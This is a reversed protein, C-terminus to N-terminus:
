NFDLRDFRNKKNIDDKKDDEKRFKLLFHKANMLSLHSIEAKIEINEYRKAYDRDITFDKISDLNLFMAICIEELIEAKGHDDKLIGSINFTNM